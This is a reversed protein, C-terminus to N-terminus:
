GRACYDSIFQLNVRTTFDNTFLRELYKHRNNAGLIDIPGFDTVCVQTTESPSITSMIKTKKMNLDLGHLKLIAVSKELMGVVEALSEVLYYCIVALRVCNLVFVKWHCGMPASLAGLPM